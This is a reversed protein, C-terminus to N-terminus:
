ESELAEKEWSLRLVIHGEGAVKAIVATGLETNMKIGLELSVKDPKLDSDRFKALASSAADRVGDLADDFRAKVDTISGKKSRVSQHGVNDEDVEFVVLGNDTEWRTFGEPMEGGQLVFRLPRMSIGRM